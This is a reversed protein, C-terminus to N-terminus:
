PDSGAGTRDTSGARGAPPRDRRCHIDHWGRPEGRTMRARAEAMEHRMLPMFDALRLWTDPLDLGFCGSHSNRFRRAYSRGERAPDPADPLFGRGQRVLQFRAYGLGSLHKVIARWAKNVEFSLFTPLAMDPGLTSLARQEMGEIDIKLYRAAGHRAILRSLPETRVRILHHDHTTTAQSDKVFSSWESFANVYFDLTEDTDSIGINEIVFRGEAQQAAFREALAACLTPDAEVAVVRFGKSLYFASDDGNNAGIDYILDDSM